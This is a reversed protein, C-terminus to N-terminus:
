RAVVTFESTVNRYTVTRVPNVRYSFEQDLRYTGPPLSKPIPVLVVESQDRCGIPRNTAIEPTAYLIGDVFTRVIKGSVDLRKCGPAQIQLVGGQVVTSSVVAPHEPFVDFVHYPRLLWYGVLLVAGATLLLLAALLQHVLRM